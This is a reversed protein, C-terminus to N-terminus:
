FIFSSISPLFYSSETANTPGASDRRTVMAAFCLSWMDLTSEKGRELVEPSIMIHGAARPAKLTPYKNIWPSVWKFPVFMTSCHLVNFAEVYFLPADISMLLVITPMSM